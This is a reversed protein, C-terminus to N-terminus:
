MMRMLEHDEAAILAGLADAIHEFQGTYGTASRKSAFREGLGPWRRVIAAQVEAKSATKKGTAALKVDTPSIVLLPLRSMQAVTAVVAKAIGMGAAASASQAGGTPLEAVILAPRYRWITEDLRKTIQRIRRVQDDTVYIKRKKAEKKTVICYAEIIEPPHGEVLAVGTHQLSVDLALVRKM